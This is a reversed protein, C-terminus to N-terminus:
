FFSVVVNGGESNIPGSSTAESSQQLSQDQNESEISSAVPVAANMFSQSASGDGSVDNRVSGSQNPM